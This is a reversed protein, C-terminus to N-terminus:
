QVQLRLMAAKEEASEPWWIGDDAARGHRFTASVSRGLALLREICLSALESLRRVAEGKLSELYVAPKAGEAQAEQQASLM